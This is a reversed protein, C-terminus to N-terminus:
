GQHFSRTILVNSSCVSQQYDHASLGIRREPSLLGAEKRMKRNLWPDIEALAPWSGENMGALILVEANHEAELTGWIMINPYTLKNRTCARPWYQILSIQMDQYQCPVPM